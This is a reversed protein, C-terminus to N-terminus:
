LHGTINVIENGAQTGRQSLEDWKKKAERLLHITESAEKQVNLVISREIKPNM